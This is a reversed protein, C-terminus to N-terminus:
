FIVSINRLNSFMNYLILYLNLICGCTLNLFTLCFGYLQDRKSDYKIGTASKNKSYKSYNKYRNRDQLLCHVLGNNYTAISVVVLIFYLVFPFFLFVVCNCDIGGGDNGCDGVVVNGADIM